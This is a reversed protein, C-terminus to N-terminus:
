CEPKRKVTKGQYTKQKNRGMEVTAAALIEGGSWTGCRESRLAWYRGRPQM